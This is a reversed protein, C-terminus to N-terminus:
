RGSEYLYSAMWTLGEETTTRPWYECGVWRSYGIRDLFGLLFDYNIEGTGPEHRDPVDAIQIHSIRDLNAEINRALDGEMAQMHHVDCELFLNDSGVEEMISLAQRSTQLYTGPRIATSTPEIMLRVGAKGLETAAFRLNSVYTERLLDPDAGESPIGAIAVLQQCGLARAHELGLGVGDQFESERGPLCTIGVEGGEWDGAPLCFGVLTLSNSELVESLRGKDYEYPFFLEVGRFGSRAAAEFRDLFDLETYMMSLCASFRPM